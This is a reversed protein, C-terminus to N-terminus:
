EKGPASKKWKHIMQRVTSHHLGFEKSIKLLRKWDPSSRYSIKKKSSKLFRMENGTHHLGSVSLSSGISIEIIEM